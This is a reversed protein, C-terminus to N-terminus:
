FRAQGSRRAVQQIAAECLARSRHQEFENRVLEIIGLMQDGMSPYRRSLLRALQQLQRQRWIWRHLYVPVVACRPSRSASVHALRAWGPTDILRDLVFLTLYSILVGFM